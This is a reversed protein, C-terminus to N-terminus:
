ALRRLLQKRELLTSVERMIRDQLAAFPLSADLVLWREPESAAIELYGNRVRQHFELKEEEFRNWEGDNGAQLLSRKRGLGVEPAIDLLVCLDPQLGGVAFENVARLEKLELGRGYGQYALTSYGFRDSIVVQGGDLAPQIVDEVLQARSACYLLAESRASIPAPTAPLLLQRLADGLRTGGPERTLVTPYGDAGLNSALTRAQSSKGSGEPGEFVIFAGL